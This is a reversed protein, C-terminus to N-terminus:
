CKRLTYKEIVCEGEGLNEAWSICPKRNYIKGSRSFHASHPHRYPTYYLGTDINKIRYVIEEKEETIVLLFNKDGVVRSNVFTGDIGIKGCECFKLKKLTDPEILTSCKKCKLISM